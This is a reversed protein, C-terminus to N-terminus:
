RGRMAMSVGDIRIRSEFYHQAFYILPRQFANAASAEKKDPNPDRVFADIFKRWCRVEDPFNNQDYYAYALSAWTRGRMPQKATTNLRRRKTTTTRSVSVPKSICERGVRRQQKTMCDEPWGPNRLM